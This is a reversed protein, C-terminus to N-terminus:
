ELRQLWNQFLQNCQGHSYPAGPPQMSKPPGGYGDDMWREPSLTSVDGQGTKVAQLIVSDAGTEDCHLLIAAGKEGSKVLTGFIDRIVYETRLRSEEALICTSERSSYFFRTRIESYDRNLEKTARDMFAIAQRRCKTDLPHQDAFVTATYFANAICAVVMWLTLNGPSKM